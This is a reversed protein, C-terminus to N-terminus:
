LQRMRGELEGEVLEYGGKSQSYSVLWKQVQKNCYTIGDSSQSPFLPITFSLLYCSLPSLASLATQSCLNSHTSNRYCSELHPIAMFPQLAIEKGTFSSRVCLAHKIVLESQDLAFNVSVLQLIIHDLHSKM